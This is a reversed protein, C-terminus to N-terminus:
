HHLSIHSIFGGPDFLDFEAVARGPVVSCEQRHDPQRNRVDDDISRSAVIQQTACTTAVLEISEFAIVNQDGTLAPIREVPAVAVIYQNAPGPAIGIPEITAVAVVDNDLVAARRAINIRHLQARAYQGAVDREGRVICIQLDGDGIGTFLKHHAVIECIFCALDLPELKGIARGPIDGGQRRPRGRDVSRSITIHQTSRRNGILHVPQITIVDQDRTGAIVQQVSTRPRVRQDAASPVIGIEVVTTVAVVRNNFVVRSHAVDICHLETRADQRSINRQIHICGIKADHNIRTLLEGNLPIRSTVGRFYLFNFKAVARNPIGRHNDAPKNWDSRVPKRDIASCLIIQQRTKIGVINNGPM